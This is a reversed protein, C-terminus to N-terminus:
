LQTAYNTGGEFPPTDGGGQFNGHGFGLKRLEEATRFTIEEEYNPAKFYTEMTKVNTKPDIVERVYKARLVDLPTKGVFDFMDGVSESKEGLRSVDFTAGALGGRKQAIKALLEFTKAKAALLRPQNTHEKGNKDTFVRHDIITFLAVLTAYQKPDECIPCKGGNEPDNKEPCPYYEPAQGKRFIGHEYYRPPILFLGSPTTQLDGDVFTVRCEEKEKLWFRYMKGIESKRKEAEAKAQEAMQASAEGTKMWSIM